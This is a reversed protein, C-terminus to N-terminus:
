EHAKVRYQGDVGVGVGVGYRTLQGSRIDNNSSHSM